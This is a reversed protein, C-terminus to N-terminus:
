NHVIFAGPLSVAGPGPLDASADVLGNGTGAICFVSALTASSPSGPTIVGAPSGNETISQCTTKGFCGALHGPGAAPGQGPCFLGDAHTSTASGTTLPSLNVSIPGVHSGDVCAGGGPTCPKGAAVGGTPCDRTLGTSSTTTCPGGTNPGRDCTGTGPSAPTGTASCRPCPQALNGTIYNDSTLPVNTSSTGTSLDLTGTAPSAWTNLVCVTLAGGALPNPIPLPTGFNCGTNTCDPTSTNAAPVTTNASINCAAGACSIAFRSQSGDPTPGEPIISAGGGLNLGGCTLNKITANSGDKATGCTGGAVSLAFDLVTPNIVPGLETKVDLAFADVKAELAATDGTTICGPKAELKAFCGKTPDVGGDFKAQAKQICALLAAPDPKTADKGYCGLIGKVKNAVCKKKGASCKNLIPAPYGPDLETVVDLVFADVKAELSGADGSTACPSKVPDKVAKAELKEMCGKEPLSFKTEVKSVCAPDLPLNKTEAKNHCGLLGTAKGNACKIKGATCKATAAQAWAGTPSILLATGSLVIAGLISYRKM